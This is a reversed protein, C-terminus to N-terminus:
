QWVSLHKRFNIKSYKPSYILLEFQPLQLLQRRGDSDVSIVISAWFIREQIKLNFPFYPIFKIVSIRFPVFDEFIFLNFNFLIDVYPINFLRELFEIFSKIYKRIDSSYILTIPSFYGTRWRLLEAFSIKNWLLFINIFLFISFTSNESM